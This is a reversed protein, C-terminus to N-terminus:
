KYLALFEELCLGNEMMYTAPEIGVYRYHWPEYMVGTIDEKGSPFRVIFGFEHCHASMYKYTETQEISSNKLEYYVDTIDCCLGTQHESCGAPMSIYHGNSDKGDTIGNNQCVRTFNAAQTAYDRYGSSLYVKLGMSRTHEAFETLATIIRSDFQQGELTVIEPPAYEAISNDGNALLFEWSSVDIEPPAPLGLALARAEPSDPDLTPEPTPTPTPEPTPTVYVTVIVPEPTESALDALESGRVSDSLKEKMYFVALVILVLGAIVRLVKLFTKM